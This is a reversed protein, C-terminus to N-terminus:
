TKMATSRILVTLTFFMLKRLFHLSLWMDSARGRNQDEIGLLLIVFDFSKVGGRSGEEEGMELWLWFGEWLGWVWRSIKRIEAWGLKEGLLLTRPLKLLVSFKLIGFGFEDWFRVQSHIHSSESFCATFIQFARCCKMAKTQTDLHSLATGNSRSNVLFLHILSVNKDGCFLLRSANPNVM